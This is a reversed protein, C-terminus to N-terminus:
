ATRRYVGTHGYHRRRLRWIERSFRSRDDASTAHVMEVAAPLTMADSEGKMSMLALAYQKYTEAGRAAPNYQRTLRGYGAARLTNAHLMNCSRCTWILNEPEDNEEHGDVHGVQIQQKTGCFACQKPGVPPRANARYRFARDTLRPNRQQADIFQKVQRLDDFVSAPDINTMWGATTKRIKAGHYIQEPGASEKPAEGTEVGKWFETRLKELIQPGRTDLKQRILWPEFGSTDGIRAGAQRAAVMAESFTPGAPNEVALHRLRWKEGYAYGPVGEFVLSYHSDGHGRQNVPIAWMAVERRYPTTTLLSVPASNFELVDGVRIALERGDSNRYLWVLEKGKLHQGFQPAFTNGVQLWSLDMGAPNVSEAKAITVIRRATGQPVNWTRLIRNPLGPIREALVFGFDPNEKLVGRVWESAEAASTFQYREEVWWRKGDHELLVVWFDTPAPNQQACYYHVKGGEPTFKWTQGPRIPRQCEQCMSTLAYVKRKQGEFRKRRTATTAM